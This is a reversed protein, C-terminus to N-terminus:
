RLDIFFVKPHTAEPLVPHTANWYAELYETLHECAEEFVNEDLCVDFVNQAFKAFQKEEFCVPDCQCLKEAAMWQVSMHRM